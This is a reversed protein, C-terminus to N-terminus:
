LDLKYGIGRVTKILKPNTPNEELVKRLWSIHVDLTRTDGTYDTEWVRKFLEERALAKSSNEMFVKLLRTLRPTLYATKDNISVMRTKQNLQLPGRILVDENLTQQFSRLRNVLKQVTFPLHMIVDVSEADAIPEDEAVILIVPIDPLRNHYWSCIRLGNTRLSAANIIIVDPKYGNMQILGDGGSNVQTVDYGKRLLADNFCIERKRHKEILLLDQQKIEQSVDEEWEVESGRKGKKYGIILSL